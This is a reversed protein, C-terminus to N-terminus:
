VVASQPRAEELMMAAGAERRRHVDIAPLLHLLQDLPELVPVAIGVVRQRDFIGVREGAARHELGHREEHLYQTRALPRQRHPLGRAEQDGRELALSVRDDVALANVPLCEVVQRHRAAGPELVDVAVVFPGGHQEHRAILGGQFAEVEILLPAAIRGAVDHLNDSGRPPRYSGAGVAVVDSWRISRETALRDFVLRTDCKSQGPPPCTQSSPVVINMPCMCAGCPVLMTATASGRLGRASAVMSRGSPQCEWLTRAALPMM